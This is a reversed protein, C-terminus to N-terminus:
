TIGEWVKEPISYSYSPRRYPSYNTFKFNLLSVCLAKALLSNAKIQEPVAVSSDARIPVGNTSTYIAFAISKKIPFLTKFILYTPKALISAVVSCSM